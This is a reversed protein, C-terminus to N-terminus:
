RIFPRGLWPHTSFFDQGGASPSALAPAAAGAEPPLRRPGNRQSGEEGSPAARPRHGERPPLLVGGGSPRFLTGIADSRRPVLRLQVAEPSDPLQLERLPRRRQAHISCGQITR